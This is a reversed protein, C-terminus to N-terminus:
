QKLTEQVETNNVLSEEKHTPTNIEIFILGIEKLRQRGGHLEGERNVDVKADDAFDVQELCTSRWSTPFAGGVDIERSIDFSKRFVANIIKQGIKLLIM